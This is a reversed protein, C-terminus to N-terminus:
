ASAWPLPPLSGYIFLYWVVSSVIASPVIFQVDVNTEHSKTRSRNGGSDPSSSALWGARKSQKAGMIFIGVFLSGRTSGRVALYGDESHVLM